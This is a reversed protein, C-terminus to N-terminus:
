PFFRTEEKTQLGPVLKLIMMRYSFSIAMHEVRKLEDNFTMIIKSAIILSHM